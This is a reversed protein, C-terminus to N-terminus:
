KPGMVFEKTRMRLAQSQDYELDEWRRTVSDYECFVDRLTQYGFWAIAGDPSTAYVFNTGPAPQPIKGLYKPQLEALQEPYRKNAVKYAEAAAVIAEGAPRNEDKLKPIIVLKYAVVLLVVVVGAVIAWQRWGTRLEAALARAISNANM